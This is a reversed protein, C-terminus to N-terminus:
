LAFTEAFHQIIDRGQRLMKIAPTRCIIVGHSNLVDFYTFRKSVNPLANLNAVMQRQRESLVPLKSGPYQQGAVGEERSLVKGENRSAEPADSITPPTTSHAHAHALAHQQHKGGEADDRVNNEAVDQVVDSAMALMRQIRSPASSGNLREGTGTRRQVKVNAASSSSSSSATGNQTQEEEEEAEEQEKLWKIEEERIRRASARTQGASRVLFVGIFLPLVVPISIVALYNLPFRFPYRSPKLLFPVTFGARLRTLLAGDHAHVERPPAYSEVLHEYAEALQVDTGKLLFPDDYEFAGTQFPVTVDNIGNAYIVVHEFQALARHFIGSPDSMAEILGRKRRGKGEGNGNGNGESAGEGEGDWGWDDTDLNYLQRGSRSLTRGGIFSALHGFASQAPPMGVHPTAFTYFSCPRIPTTSSSSKKSSFFSQAHLLGVVYRAILGGLSYGVISFKTIEAGNSTSTSASPFLHQALEVDKKDEDGGQGTSAPKVSRIRKVAMKIERAVREACLDVGDYTNVWANSVTNLVVLKHERGEEEEEGEARKPMKSLLEEMADDEKKKQEAEKKQKKASKVKKKKKDADKPSELEQLLLGGHAQALSRAVFALHQAQGWLGHVFVVLHVKVHESQTKFETAPEAHLNPTTSSSSSSSGGASSSAAAPAPAAGNQHQSAM